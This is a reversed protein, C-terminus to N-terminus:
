PGTLQLCAPVNYSSNRIRLKTTTQYIHLFDCAMCAPGPGCLWAWLPDYAPGFNVAPIAPTWKGASAREKYRARFHMSIYLVGPTEYRDPWFPVEGGGGKEKKVATRNILAWSFRGRDAVVLVTVAM